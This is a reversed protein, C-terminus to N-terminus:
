FCVLNIFSLAVFTITKSTQWKNIEIVHSYSLVQLLTYILILLRTGGTTICILTNLDFRYGIYYLRNVRRIANNRTILFSGINAVSVALSSNNKFYMKLEILAVGIIGNSFDTVTIAYSAKKIIFILM